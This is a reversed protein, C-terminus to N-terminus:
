SVEHDVLGCGLEETVAWVLQTYHGVGPSMRVVHCCPVISVARIIINIM